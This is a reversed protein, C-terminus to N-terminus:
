IPFYVYKHEKYFLMHNYNKIIDSYKTKIDKLINRLEISNKVQIEIEIDDGGLVENDYIINPHQKIYQRLSKQKENTTNHLNMHVKYYEYGLKELDFMTRYGIIIKNKELMKIRAVVTKATIKLKQSIDVVSMRSDSALLKLIDIDKKTLKIEEPETIFIYEQNNLKNDLFYTRPFYSVKTFITLNKEDFYNNYKNLLETWLNNVEKISKAVIWMGLDYNGDISVIWTVIKQKKLFQIIEEEKEPTTNEFKLYLRFSILGLKGVNIITQFQKIIGLDQLRKIRYAISDKSLRIKKAIEKYTQRSNTDLEFLLKKDKLDLDLM